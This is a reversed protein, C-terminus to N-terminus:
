RSRFFNQVEDTEGNTKNTIRFVIDESPARNNDKPALISLRFEKTTDRKVPITFSLPDASKFGTPTLTLGEPAKILAIEFTAAEAKNGLRLTYDNRISGDSLMVFIPNRDHTIGAEVTSRNLLAYLMILSIGIIMAVYILTRPRIVKYISEKGELHRQINIDTDYDILGRPKGIKEMVTDCADICLGCQICGMQSGKRIDVGTPCVAVCQNCDICDGAPEGQQLRTRMKKLSGRPEGRDVRYAVNLAWEDTLAAQIRPWPCMYLCVQERMHGALIYTTSTLIAIWVYAVMPADGTFISMTLTPADAFYLIWAGGTMCGIVIWLVHKLTKQAILKLTLPQKSNKMRVRRDGEIWREVAFFLDTWVTQPCMYGCWVRGALANMLFLALSAIILLGTLYYFETPWIEIFFFYFRSSPFDILVAQDPVGPGRDWRIFPLGYYLGLAFIMFAWKISRFRGKVSQPYIKPAAEYLIESSTQAGHTEATM